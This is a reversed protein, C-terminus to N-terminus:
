YVGELDPHQYSSFLLGEPSGQLALRLRECDLSLSLVVFVVVALLTVQSGSWSSVSSTIGLVPPLYM